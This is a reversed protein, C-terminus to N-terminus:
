VFARLYYFRSHGSLWLGSSAPAPAWCAGGTLAWQVFSSVMVLIEAELWSPTVLVPNVDGGLIVLIGAFYVFCHNELCQVGSLSFYHSRLTLFCIFLARRIGWGVAQPVNRVLCLSLHCTPDPMRRCQCSSTLPRPVWASFWFPILQM